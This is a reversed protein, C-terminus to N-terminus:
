MIMLAKMLKLDLSFCQRRFLRSQKLMQLQRFTSLGGSTMLSFATSLLIYKHVTYKALILIVFSKLPKWSM